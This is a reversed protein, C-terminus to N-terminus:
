KTISKTWRRSFIRVDFSQDYNPISDFLTEDFEFSDLYASQDQVADVICEMPYVTDDPPTFNIIENM